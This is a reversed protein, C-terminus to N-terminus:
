GLLDEEREEEDSGFKEWGSHDHHWNICEEDECLIINREYEPYTAMKVGYISEGNFVGAIKKVYMYNLAYGTHNAYYSVYTETTKETNTGSVVYDYTISFFDVGFNTTVPPNFSLIKATKNSFNEFASTSFFASASNEEETNEDDTEEDEENEVESSEMMGYVRGAYYDLLTATGNYIKTTFVTDRSSEYRYFGDDKSAIVCPMPDADTEIPVIVTLPSADKVLTTVFTKKGELDKKVEETQSAKYIKNRQAYADTVELATSGDALGNKYYLYDGAVGVISIDSVTNNLIEERAEGSPTIMELIKGSKKEASTATRTFYVYDSVNNYYETESLKSNAFATPDYTEVNPFYVTDVGKVIEKTEVVASGSVKTSVIYGTKIGNEEDEANAFYTEMTLLYVYDGRKVFSYPIATNKENTVYLQNLSERAIDYAYFEAREYQVEGDSSRDTDPSAFYIIGDYIWFGGNYGATGIKKSVVQENKIAYESKGGNTAVFNQQEYGEENEILPFEGNELDGIQYDGLSIYDKKEYEFDLVDRLNAGEKINYDVKGNVTNGDKLEEDALLGRKETIKARYIGGKIVNGLLNSKGNEDTYDPTGNIFYVYDGYQVTTGGNSYVITSTPDLPDEGTNSDCATLSFASAMFLVATLLMVFLTKIKKKM